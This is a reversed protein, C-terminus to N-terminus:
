VEQCNGVGRGARGPMACLISGSLDRSEKTATNIEVKGGSAEKIPTPSISLLCQQRRHAGEPAFRLRSLFGSLMKQHNQASAGEQRNPGHTCTHVKGWGGLGEHPSRNMVHSITVKPM